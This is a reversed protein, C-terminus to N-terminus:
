ISSFNMLLKDSSKKSRCLWISRKYTNKSDNLKKVFVLDRKNQDIIKINTKKQSMPSKIEKKKLITFETGRKDKIKVYSESDAKIIKQKTISRHFMIYVDQQKRKEKKLKM